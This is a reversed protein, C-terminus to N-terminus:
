GWIRGSVTSRFGWALGDIIRAMCLIRARTATTMNSITPTAGSAAPCASTMVLARMRSPVPPAISRPEMTTRSPLITDTAAPAALAGPARTMSALPIVTIGPKMSACRCGIPLPASQSFVSAGARMCSNRSAPKVVSRDAPSSMSVAIASRLWIALPPM